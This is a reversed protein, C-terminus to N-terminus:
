TQVEEIEIDKNKAIKKIVSKTNSKAASKPKQPSETEKQKM